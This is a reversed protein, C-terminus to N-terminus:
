HLRQVACGKCVWDKWTTRRRLNADAKSRALLLLFAYRTRLIGFGYSGCSHLLTKWVLQGGFDIADQASSIGTSVMCLSDNTSHCASALLSARSGRHRVEQAPHCPDPPLQRLPAAKLRAYQARAGRQLLRPGGGAGGVGRHMCDTASAAERAGGAGLAVRHVACGPFLSWGCARQPPSGGICPLMEQGDPQCGCWRRCAAEPFGCRPRLGLSIM